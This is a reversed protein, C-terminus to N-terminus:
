VIERKRKYLKLSIISTILLISILIIKSSDSTPPNEIGFTAIITVNTEPMQFTNNNYSIENNLSDIITLNELSHNEEPIPYYKILEEYRATSPVEITGEGEIKTNISLPLYYVINNNKFCNYSIEKEEPSKTVIIPFRKSLAM